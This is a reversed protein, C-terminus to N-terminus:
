NDIELLSLIGIIRVAGDWVLFTRIEKEIETLQFKAEEATEAKM